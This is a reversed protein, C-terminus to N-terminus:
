QLNLKRSMIHRTGVYFFVMCFLMLVLNGTLMPDLVNKMVGIGAEEMQVSSGSMYYESFASYSTAVMIIVAAIQEVMWILIFVGLMAAVKHQKVLNGAAISFYAQLVMMVPMLLLSILTIYVFLPWEGINCFARVLFAGFASLDAGNMGIILVAGALVLIDLGIWLIGTFGKSLIIQAPTVPLTNTLYGQDTFVNKYFRVVLHLYTFFATAAIAVFMVMITLAALWNNGMNDMAGSVELSVRLVLAFLLMGGHILLLLKSVARWEHKFLKALM